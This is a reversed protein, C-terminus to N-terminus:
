LLRPSHTEAVTDNPTCEEQNGTDGRKNDKKKIIRRGGLDVSKGEVVSKRDRAGQAVAEAIWQEAREADALGILIPLACTQVGTVSIDRIGDEAQFFVIRTSGNLSLPDPPETFPRATTYTQTHSSEAVYGRRPNDRM